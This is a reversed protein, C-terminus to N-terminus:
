DTLQSNSDWGKKQKKLIYNKGKLFLELTIKKQIFYNSIKFKLFHTLIIIM